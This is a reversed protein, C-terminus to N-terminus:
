ATASALPTQGISSSDSRAYMDDTQTHDLADSQPQMVRAFFGAVPSCSGHVAVFERLTTLALPRAKLTGASASVVEVAVYEGPVALAENGSCSSRGAISTAASQWAESGGLQQATYHPFGYDIVRGTEAGGELSNFTSSSTAVAAHAVPSYAEPLAVDPFVVRKM